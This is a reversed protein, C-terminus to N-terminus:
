AKAQPCLINAKAKRTTGKNVDSTEGLAVCEWHYMSIISQVVPSTRPRCFVEESCSVVLYPRWHSVNFHLAANSSLNDNLLERTFYNRPTEIINFM